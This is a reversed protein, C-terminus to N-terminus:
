IKKFVRFLASEFARQIVHAVLFRGQVNHLVAHDLQGGV